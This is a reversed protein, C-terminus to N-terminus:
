SHTILKVYFIVRNRKRWGQQQGKSNKRCSVQGAHHTCIELKDDTFLWVGSVKLTELVFPFDPPQMANAVVYLFGEDGPQMANAVVSTWTTRSQISSIVQYYWYVNLM